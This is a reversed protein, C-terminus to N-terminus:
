FEPTGPHISRYDDLTLLVQAALSEYHHKWQDSLEAPFKCRERVVMWGMEYNQLIVVVHDAWSISRENNAIYRFRAPGKPTNVYRVGGFRDVTEVIKEWPTERLLKEGATSFKIGPIIQLFNEHTFMKVVQLTKISALMRPESLLIHLDDM